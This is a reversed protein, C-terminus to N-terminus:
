KRRLVARPSGAFRWALRLAWVIWLVIQTAWQFVLMQADANEQRVRECVRDIERLRIQLDEVKAQAHAAQAGVNEIDRQVLPFATELSSGDGNLQTLAREANQSAECVRMRGAGADVAPLPPPTFQAVM